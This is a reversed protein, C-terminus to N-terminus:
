EVDQYRNYEYVQEFPISLPACPVRGPPEGFRARFDSPALVDRGETGWRDSM